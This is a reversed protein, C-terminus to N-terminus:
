IRSFREIAAIAGDRYIALLQHDDLLVYTQDGQDCALQAVKYNPALLLHSLRERLEPQSPILDALAERSRSGYGFRFVGACAASDLATTQGDPQSQVVTEPRFTIRNDDQTAWAGLFPNQEVPRGTELAVCALPLVALMATALIRVPAPSAPRSGIMTTTEPLTGAHLRELRNFARVLLAERHPQAHGLAGRRGGKCTSRASRRIPRLDRLLV